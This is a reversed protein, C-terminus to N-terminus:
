PCVNLAADDVYLTTIGGSGNNFVEFHVRVSQGLYPTMDFTRLTWTQTNSNPWRLRLPEGLVRGYDDLVWCYIGDYADGSIAYYWFSLTASSATAPLTVRQNAASNSYVNPDGWELGLRLSRSGSHARTTSYGAPWATRPINWNATAEFGGNLLLNNCSGPTSTPTSTPQPTCTPTPSNAPAPTYTPTPSPPVPTPGTCYQLAVDDVYLRSIGGTGNNYCGALIKLSQGRYASVDYQVSRWQQQNAAPSFYLVYPQIATNDQRYLIVYQKDNWDGSYTYYWLRLVASTANAPITVWQYASSYSYVNEWWNEIGVRMSWSGTHAVLSSRGAMYATPPLEWSGPSEFGGNAVADQCGVPTNTAAPGSTATPSPTPTPTTSGTPTATPTSSRTPTPTSTATETPTPTLKAPLTDTPTPWGPYPILTPTPSPLVPVTTETPTPSPPTTGPTNTATPTVSAVPMVTTETPSPTSSPTCTATPTNTPTHTATNTPVPTPPTLTIGAVQITGNSRTHPISIALNNTLISNQFTVVTTGWYKSHFHIRALTGSGSYGALQGALIGFHIEGGSNDVVNLYPQDQAFFDGRGIEISPTSPDADVVSLVAPNFALHFEAGYLNSVNNIRVEVTTDAGLQIQQYAPEITLSTAPVLLNFLSLLPTLMVALFTGSLIQLAKKPM